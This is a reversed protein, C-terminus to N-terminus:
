RSSRKVQHMADRVRRVGPDAMLEQWELSSLAEAGAAGFRLLEVCGICVGIDGVRPRAGPRAVDTAMDNFRGCHPCTVAAPAFPRRDSM